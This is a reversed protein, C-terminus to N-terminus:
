SVEKVIEYRISNARMFDRLAIIQEKTGSVRFTGSIRSADQMDSLSGQDSPEPLVPADRPPVQEPAAQAQTRQEQQILAAAYALACSKDYSQVYCNMVATLHPSDAYYGQLEQVDDQIRCLTDWIQQQLVSEKMTKNRWKPDLIRDLEVKIPIHLSSAMCNAFFAELRAHKEELAADDFAKM